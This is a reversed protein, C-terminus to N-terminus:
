KQALKNYYHRAFKRIKQDLLGKDEYKYLKLDYIKQQLENNPKYIEYGYGQDGYPNLKDTLQQRFSDVIKTWQAVTIQGLQERDKQKELFNTKNMPELETYGYEEIENNILFEEAEEKDDITGNLFPVIENVLDINELILEKEQYFKASEPDIFSKSNRM